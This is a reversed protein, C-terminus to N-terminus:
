QHYVFRMLKGDRAEGFYNPRTKSDDCIFQFKQYLHIAPLNTSDVTLTIERRGKKVLLKKIEDMADQLLMSAYGNGQHENKVALKDINAKRKKYSFLLLGCLHGDIFRCISRKGPKNHYMKIWEEDLQETENVFTERTLGIMEKMLEPTYKLIIATIMKPPPILKQSESNIQADTASRYTSM